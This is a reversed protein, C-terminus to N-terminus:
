SRCPWSSTLGSNRLAFLKKERNCRDVNALDSIVNVGINVFARRAAPWALEGKSWWETINRPNVSFDKMAYFNTAMHVVGTKEAQIYYHLAGSDARRRRVRTQVCMHSPQVTALSMDVKGTLRIWDVWELVFHAHLRIQGTQHFTEM